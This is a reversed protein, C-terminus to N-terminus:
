LYKFWSFEKLVVKIRFSDDFDFWGSPCMDLWKVWFWLHLRATTNSLILTDGFDNLNMRQPILIDTVLNWPLENSIQQSIESHVLTASRVVNTDKWGCLTCYICLNWSNKPFFFDGAIVMHHMSKPKRVKSWEQVKWTACPRLYCRQAPAPRKAPDCDSDSGTSCALTRWVAGLGCSTSCQGCIYYCMLVGSVTQLKLVPHVFMELM